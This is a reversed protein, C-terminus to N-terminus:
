VYSLLPIRNKEVTVLGFREMNLETHVRKLQSIRQELEEISVESLCIYSEGQSESHCIRNSSLRAEKSEYTENGDKFEYKAVPRKQPLIQQFDEYYALQIFNTSCNSANMM